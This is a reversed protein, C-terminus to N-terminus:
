RINSNLQGSPRLMCSLALARLTTLAAAGDKAVFIGVPKVEGVPRHHPPSHHERRRCSKRPETLDRAWINTRPGVASKTPRSAAPAPRIERHSTNATARRRRRFTALHGSLTVPPKPAPVATPLEVLATMAHQVPGRQRAVDDGEDHEAPPVVPQRQAVEALDHRQAPNLDAVLGDAVPLRRQKGDHAIFQTFPTAPCPSAGPDAPINVLGVQLDAASPAIEVPCDVTVSVQDVGHQALVAVHPGCLCEEARGPRGHAKTRLPHRRIAMAGIWLRDAADQAFSHPV